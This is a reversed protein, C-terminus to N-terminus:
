EARRFSLTAGLALAAGGLDIGQDDYPAVVGVAVAIVAPDGTASVVRAVGVGVTESGLVGVLHFRRWDYVSAGVGLDCGPGSEEGDTLACWGAAAVRSPEAQPQALAPAAFLLALLTALKM